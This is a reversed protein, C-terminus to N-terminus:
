SNESRLFRMRQEHSFVERNRSDPIVSRFKSISRIELSRVAKWCRLIAFNATFRCLVPFQTASIPLAPHPGSQACLWGGAAAAFFFARPM